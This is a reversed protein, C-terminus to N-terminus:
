SAAVWSVSHGSAVVVTGTSCKRKKMTYSTVVMISGDPQPLSYSTEWTNRWFGCHHRRHADAQAPISLVMAIAMTLAVLIKKM